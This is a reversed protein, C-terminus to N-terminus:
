RFDDPTYGDDPPQNSAKLYDNVMPEDKLKFGRFVMLGNSKGREFGKENLNDRLASDSYVRAGVEKAWAKFAKFFDATRTRTDPEIDACERLFTGVPDAAEMLRDKLTLMAKPSDIGPPVGKGQELREFFDRFGDLLWNLIGPLEAMLAANIELEGRRQEQPLERLNVDLPIFVLRRRTGDDEDKIKPTRNFFIVPIGTPRYVFQPMGLARAPRLDGGTLSKIKKASFVDTVAPESALIVRAGPLDVEEPTAQGASQNQTQLFMEVKAPAAYGGFSGLVEGLIKALTSKGNGGAGRVLLAVQAPNQGFVLAGLARKLCARIDYDPVILLMFQEWESCTAGPVFPTGACRTPRPARDVPVLWDRRWASLDKDPNWDGAGDPPPADKVRRLDVAGNKVVLLWPDADLDHIEARVQWECAKLAKGQKDVNGVTTQHKRLAKIRDQRMAESAEEDTVFRRPDKPKDAERQRFRAVELESFQQIAVAKIEEAVLDPLRAFIEAARLIGSQFSFCNGDWVGWGKGLVFVLDEGYAALIRRANGRDNLELYAREEPSLRLDKRSKTKGHNGVLQDIMGM